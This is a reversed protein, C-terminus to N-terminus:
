VQMRRRIAGSQLRDLVVADGDRGNTENLFERVVRKGVAWSM